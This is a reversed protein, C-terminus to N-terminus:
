LVCHDVGNQCFEDKLQDYNKYGQRSNVPGALANSAWFALATIVFTTLTSRM